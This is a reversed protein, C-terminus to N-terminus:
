PKKIRWAFEPAYCRCVMLRKKCTDCYYGGDTIVAVPKPPKPNREVEPLKAGCFPCYLPKDSTSRVYDRAYGPASGLHDIRLVWEPSGVYDNEPDWPFRLYIAVFNQVPKCCKPTLYRERCM